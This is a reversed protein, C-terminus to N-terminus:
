PYFLRLTLWPRKKVPLNMVYVPSTISTRGGVWDWLPFRALWGEKEAINDLKSGIQTISIAHRSFDLGRSTYLNKMELMGNRTEITGGSKSIVIVLTEDLSEKICEFARDIGDPDTNDIFYLKMKDDATGLADSVFQPGLSSGGIGIIVLNKFTKKRESLLIGTHVQHAFEKIEIVAEEIEARTKEDFALEPSRLWYHGVRRNEDPNAVAGKELDDMAKLAQSMKEEINQFLEFSFNMRSIDLMLGLQSNHYLYKKYKEWLIMEGM